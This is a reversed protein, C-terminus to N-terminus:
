GPRAARGTGVAVVLACRDARRRRAAAGRRCGGPRRGIRRVAPFAIAAAVAILPLLGLFVFRWGLAEGVVGAIAPGIVGPLVWATSLTAFMQPRLHEPLSRGIAVYAIPPIAGAGLGQLFRAAVLVQMSPALGGVILGIAFLASGSRSRARRPRAPRHPRRRRRDRHALRALFATFVWGYLELGGLESAVIPM